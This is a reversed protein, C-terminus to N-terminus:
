LVDDDSYGLKDAGNADLAPRGAADREPQTSITYSTYYGM